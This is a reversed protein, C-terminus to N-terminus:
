EVAELWTRDKRTAWVERAILQVIEKPFNAFSSAKRTGVLLLAASQVIGPIRANRELLVKVAERADDGFNHNGAIRLEKLSSNRKLGEVLAAAGKPGINNNILGLSELTSNYRLAEGLYIAGQDLLENTNMQLSLLRKNTKLCEAFAKGARASLGNGGLDIMDCCDDNAFYAAFVEGRDDEMYDREFSFRKILAGSLLLDAIDPLPENPMTRLTELVAEDGNLKQVVRGEAEAESAITVAYMHSM